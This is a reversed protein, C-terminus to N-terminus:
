PARLWTSEGVPVIKPIWPHTGRTTQSLRGKSPRVRPSGRRRSDFNRLRQSVNVFKSSLWFWQVGDLPRMNRAMGLQGCRAQELGTCRVRAPTDRPGSVPCGAWVAPRGATEQPAALSVLVNFWRAARSTDKRPPFPHRDGEPAAPRQGRGRQAAGATAAGARRFIAQAPGASRVPRDTAGIQPCSAFPRCRRVAKSSPTM